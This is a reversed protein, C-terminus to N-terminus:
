PFHPYALSVKKEEGGHISSLIWKPFNMIKEPFSIMSAPLPHLTFTLNQSRLKAEGFGEGTTRFATLSTGVIVANGVSVSLFTPCRQDTAEMGIAPATVINARIPRILGPTLWCLLSVMLPDNAM